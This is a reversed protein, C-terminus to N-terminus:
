NLNLEPPCNPQQFSADFEVESCTSSLVSNDAIPVRSADNNSNVIDDRTVIPPEPAARECPHSSRVHATFAETRKNDSLRREEIQAEVATVRKNFVDM